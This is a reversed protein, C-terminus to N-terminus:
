IIIKLRLAARRERIPIVDGPTKSFLVIGYKLKSNFLVVRRTFFRLFDKESVSTDLQFGRWHVRERERYNNM